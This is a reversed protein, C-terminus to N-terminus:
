AAATKHVSEYEGLSSRSTNPWGYNEMCETLGVREKHLNIDQLSTCLLPCSTQLQEHRHPTPLSHPPQSAERGAMGGVGQLAIDTQDLPPGAITTANHNLQPSSHHASWNPRWAPSVKCHALSYRCRRSTPHDSATAGLPVGVCAREEGDEGERGKDDLDERM